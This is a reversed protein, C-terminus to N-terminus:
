GSETQVPPLGVAHDPIGAIGVDIMFLSGALPQEQWDKADFYRSGTTILLDRRREGGFACMTPKAVPLRIEADIRGEVIRCVRWGGHMACWYGGEVDVAAGDPVGDDSAFERFVRRDSITGDDPDYRYRWIVRRPSDAYYLIRDDPSFALGNSVRVGGIERTQRFCRDFCYLGAMPKDSERAVLSGVLWRGHRDVRGDNLRLEQDGLTVRAVPSLTENGLDFMWLSTPGALLYIGKRRTLAVAGMEEPVPWTRNTGDSPSFANVVKQPIDLWIFCALAEDWVPGEATTSRRTLVCDPLKATM